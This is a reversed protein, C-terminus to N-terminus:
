KGAKQQSLGKFALLLWFLSAAMSGAAFGCFGIVLADLYNM